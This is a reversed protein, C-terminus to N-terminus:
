HPFAYIGTVQVYCRKESCGPQLWPRALGLRLYLREASRLEDLLQLALEQRGRRNREVEHRCRDWFALDSVTRDYTRGIRDSFTLRPKSNHPSLVIGHITPGSLTAISRTAAGPQVWGDGMLLGDYIREVETYSSRRLVEEWEQMDCFGAPSISNLDFAQDEIHPPTTDIPHLDFTVKAQPRVIQVTNRWLLDKPVGDGHPYLPRICRGSNDIGVICVRDRKPMQTLDTIVLTKLM